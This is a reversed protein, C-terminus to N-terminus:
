TKWGKRLGAHRRANSKRNVSVSGTPNRNFRALIVVVTVSPPETVLLEAPLVM